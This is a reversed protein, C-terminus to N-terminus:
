RPRREPPPPTSTTRARQPEADALGRRRRAVAASGCSRCRSGSSRSSTTGPSCRVVMIFWSNIAIQRAPRKAVARNSGFMSVFLPATTLPNIIPLLTVPVLVLAKLFPPILAEAGEAVGGRISAASM